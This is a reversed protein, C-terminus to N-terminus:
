LCFSNCQWCLALLVIALCVLVLGLTHWRTRTKGQGAQHQLGDNGACKEPDLLSETSPYSQRPDWTSKRHSSSADGYPAAASPRSFMPTKSIAERGHRHRNQLTDHSSPIVSQPLTPRSVPVESSLSVTKMLTRELRNVEPWKRSDIDMLMNQWDGAMAVHVLHSALHEMGSTNSPPDADAECTRGQAYDNSLTPSPSCSDCRAAVSWLEENGSGGDQIEKTQGEPCTQPSRM